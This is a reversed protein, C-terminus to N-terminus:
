LNGGARLLRLHVIGKRRLASFMILLLHVANRGGRILGSGKLFALSGVLFGLFLEAVFPCCGGMGSEAVPDVKLGFLGATNAKARCELTM